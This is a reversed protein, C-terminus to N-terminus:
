QQAAKIHREELSRSMDLLQADTMLTIEDLLWRVALDPKTPVTVGIQASPLRALLGAREHRSTLEEGANTEIWALLDVNLGTLADTVVKRYSSRIDALAPAHYIERTSFDRIKAMAEGYRCHGLFGGGHTAKCLEGTEVHEAISPYVEVCANILSKVMKSRMFKIAQSKNSMARATDISAPDLVHGFNELLTEFSIIGLQAADEMDVTLYCIDDAAEMLYALPHRKWGGEPDPRMGTNHAVQSMTELDAAHVGYKKSGPRLTFPYKGFAALTASTLNLGGGERWGMTRTVMRFGQANGEHLCLEQALSGDVMSCVKKGIPSKAYFNSIEDEGEHGLPPNGIDHAMCAASVIHGIDTPDVRWFAEGHPAAHFGYYAIMRAGVAVGLSRGVRSVEMSHTLRNRFAAAIGTRDHVQTKDALARFGESFTIKDGDTQFPSRQETILNVYELGSDEDQVPRTPSVISGISRIQQTM